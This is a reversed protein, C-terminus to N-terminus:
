RALGGVVGDSGGDTTSQWPNGVSSSPAAAIPTVIGISASRIAFSPQRASANVKRPQPRDVPFKESPPQSSSRLAAMAQSVSM